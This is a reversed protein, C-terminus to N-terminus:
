KIKVNLHIIESIGFTLWWIGNYIDKLFHMEADDTM